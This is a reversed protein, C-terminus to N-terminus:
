DSGERSSLKASLRARDYAGKLYLPGIGGAMFLAGIVAGSAGARDAGVTAAVAVLILMFSNGPHHGVHPLWGMGRWIMGLTKSM